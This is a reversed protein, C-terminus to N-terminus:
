GRLYIYVVLVADFVLLALLTIQIFLLHERVEERFQKGSTKMGNIRNSLRLLPKKM